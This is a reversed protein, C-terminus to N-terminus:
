MKLITKGLIEASRTWVIERASPNSIGADLRELCITQGVPAWFHKSVCPACWFYKPQFNRSMKVQLVNNRGVAEESPQQSERESPRKTDSWEGSRIKTIAETNWYVVAGGGKNWREAKMNSRICLLICFSWCTKVVSYAM